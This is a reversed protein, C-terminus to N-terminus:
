GPQNNGPEAEPLGAARRQTLQLWSDCVPAPKGEFVRDFVDLAGQPSFIGSVVAPWLVADERRVIEAVVAPVREMKLAAALAFRHQGHKIVWKYRGGNRLATVQLASHPDFSIFGNSKASAALRCLRRVELMIKNPRAPGFATLGDDGDALVGHQLGELRANKRHGEKVESVSQASWPLLYNSPPLESLSPAGSASLGLAETASSPRVAQYYTRLLTQIESEVEPSRQARLAIELAAVFPHSAAALPLALSDFARADVLPIDFVAAGRQNPLYESTIPDAEPGQVHVTGARPIRRVEYGLRSLTLRALERLM